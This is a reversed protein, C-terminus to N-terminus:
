GEQGDTEEKEKIEIIGDEILKKKVTEAVDKPRGRRVKVRIDAYRLYLPRREFFVSPITQAKGLVVGRRKPDGIHRTLTRLETDLFVVKSVYTLYTMAHEHLIASGGTAVIKPSDDLSLLASEEAEMFYKMGKQAQIEALSMGEKDVILHDTDVFSVGLEQSLIRGVTSKGSGPMGILVVMKKLLLVEGKGKEAKGTEPEERIESYM